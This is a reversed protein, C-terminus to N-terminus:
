ASNSDRQLLHQLVDKLLVPVRYAHADSIESITRQASDRVGRCRRLEVVGRSCADEDPFQEILGRSESCVSNVALIVIEVDHVPIATDFRAHLRRNEKLGSTRRQPVGGRQRSREKPSAAVRSIASSERNDTPDGHLSCSQNRVYHLTGNRAHGGPERGPFLWSRVNLFWGFRRRDKGGITREFAVKQGLTIGILLAARV